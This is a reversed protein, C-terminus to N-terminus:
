TSRMIRFRVQWPCSRLSLRRASLNRETLYAAAADEISAFNRSTYKQPFELVPVANVENDVLAFRVNPGGADAVVGYLNM